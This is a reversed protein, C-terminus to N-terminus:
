DERKKKLLIYAAAISGSMIGALEFVSSNFGTNVPVNKLTCEATFTKEGTSGKSITNGEKWTCTYGARSPIKLIVEDEITYSSPNSNDNSAGNLTYNIKYSIKNWQATFTKDGTSGKPIKNGEKWSVFTYGTKSPDKLIIEQTTDYVSPNDQHNKGGDLVYNIAFSKPADEKYKCTETTSGYNLANKDNCLIKPEDKFKCAETTSGYNLANPDDCLIEPVDPEYKCTETTSGYNKAQPDNCLIEPVDPYICAETTSGYNTASEDDCLVEPEEEYICVETTSGFNLANEDDCLIEPEPYVCAETTSGYNTASQDDCLIEPEEYVCADTTSGYNTASPDNCIVEPEPDPYICAETISGYNEANPDDCLVEPVDPVDPKIEELEWQATFTKNGTSGKPITNGEEWGVFKYGEKTPNKLTIAKSEVTYTSPNQSNNIGGDLVYTITYAKPTWQATFTKNGTSGKSITNGEKWGVFDYNAKTPDKLTITNTEVTYSTPNASNNTGGNLVYSISYKIPTAQATIKHDMKALSSTIKKSSHNYSWDDGYASRVSGASFLTHSDVTLTKLEYGPKLSYTVNWPDALAVTKTPTIEAGTASTKINVKLNRNNLFQPRFFNSSVRDRALSTDNSADFMFRHSNVNSTIFGISVPDFDSGVPGDPMLGASVLSTGDLYSYSSEPTLRMASDYGTIKGDGNAGWGNYGTQFQAQQVFTKGKLKPVDDRTIYSDPWVLVNTDDKNVYAIKTGYELPQWVFVSNTTTIPNKWTQNDSHKYFSYYIICQKINFLWTGGDLTGHTSIYAKDKYLIDKGASHFYTTSILDSPIKDENTFLKINTYSVMVDVLEGKYNAANQYGVVLDGKSPDDIRYVRDTAAPFKDYEIGVDRLFGKDTSYGPNSIVSYGKTRDTNVGVNTLNLNQAIVKKGNTTTANIMTGGAASISKPFFSLIMFFSLCLVLIRTKKMFVEKISKYM